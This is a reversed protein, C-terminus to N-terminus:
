VNKEPVGKSNHYAKASICDATIQKALEEVSGFKKEERTQKLFEVEIVKGYLEKEFNFIHTEVNKKFKGITPKEGVNTISPYRKGDYLCYTIYVGNPPTVMSEDIILNSTPFGITKGLRNGVVVEGKIAYYRDMYKKCLDVRGEKILERLLSSSVLVGDVRYPELVHIGFGKELSERMLMETNGRAKAGFRYNFGCYAEQMKFVGLLLDDIYQEPEMDMVTEDFPINFMYDIGLGEIIKTKEGEYLIKKVPEEGDKRMFNKPHNSFTFVDSRLVATKAEDVTRRIIERHGKHVGDFNGMAVVTPEIDKIEELFRFIKM